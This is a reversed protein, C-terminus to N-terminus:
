SGKSRSSRSSTETANGLDEVCYEPPTPFYVSIVGCENLEAPIVPKQKFKTRANQTEVEAGFVSAFLEEGGDITFGRGASPLVTFGLARCMTMPGALESKDGGSTAVRARVM